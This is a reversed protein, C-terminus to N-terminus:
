LLLLICCLNLCRCLHLMKFLLIVSWYNIPGHYSTDLALYCNHNLNSLHNSSYIIILSFFLIIINQKTKLQIDLFM